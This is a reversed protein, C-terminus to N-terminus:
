EARELAVGSEGAEEVGPDLLLGFGDAMRTLYNFIGVVHGVELCGADDFGLERLPQWDEEVMKTPNASMKEAVTCLAIDRESLGPAERWSGRKIAAVFDSNGGEM